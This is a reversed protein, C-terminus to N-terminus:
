LIRSTYLSHHPINSTKFNKVDADHWEVNHVLFSSYFLRLLTNMNMWMLDCDFSEYRTIRHYQIKNHQAHPQSNLKQRAHLFSFCLPKIPPLCQSFFKFLISFFSFFFRLCHHRRRWVNLVNGYVQETFNLLPVPLPLLM